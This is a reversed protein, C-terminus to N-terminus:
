RWRSSPRDRWLAILGGLSGAALATAAVILMAQVVQRQRHRRAPALVDAGARHGVLLAVIPLLSGLMKGLVIEYNRMDTMLLLCSRADTKKRPSPAPPLFPRRLVPVPRAARVDAGPLPASRLPGDRGAHRHSDLRADGALRDRCHGVPEGLYAARTVYHSSRRPVTLLERQFIPGLM